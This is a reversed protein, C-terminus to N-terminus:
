FPSTVEVQFFRPKQPGNDGGDIINPFPVRVADIVGDTAIVEPTSENDVWDLLSNSFEVTYTLGASVYDKRRGYVAYWVGSDKVLVPQGTGTVVGAAYTIPGVASITPQTGFAYERLNSLGDTDQDNTTLKDTLAPSYTADAWANYLGLPTTLVLSNGIKVLSYGAIPTLLTPTGTIGTSSTILTHSPLTPTGSIKITGDTLNFSSTSTTPSGLTFSLSAGASVTIPSAHSGGILSLTGASVTTAGSYSNAAGNLTLTGAGTKTLAGTGVLARSATITSTADTVEITPTGTGGTGITFTGLGHIRANVGVGINKITGGTFNFESSANRNSIGWQGRLELTGGSLNYQDVAATTDGRNDLVVWDTKVTGGSQSMIGSGDVGIYIGGNVEAATATSPDTALAANAAITLTGGSINYNSTANSWHGIRMHTGATVSGGTQNGTAAFGSQEGLWLNGSNVVNVGTMFNVTSGTVATGLSINGATINGDLNAVSGVRGAVTGSLLSGNGLNIEVGNQNFGGISDLRVATKSKDTGVSTITNGSALTYGDLREFRVSASGADGNLIVSGTGLTGTTTNNGVAVLQGQASPSGSNVFIDKLANAGVNNTGTLLINTGSAGGGIVLVDTSNTTSISGSITGTSGYCMIKATGELTINGTIVANGDMRIAGIGGTNTGTYASLGSAVIPAGGSVEAFGHGSIIFNNSFTAASLWAQAGADVEITAAGIGAPTLTTSNRFTGGETGAGTTPSLLIKGTFTTGTSNINVGRVGAAAAFHPDIVITGSGALRNTFNFDGDNAVVKLTAGANVQVLSGTPITTTASAVLTGANMNAVLTGAEVLTVGTYTNLMTVLTATGTNTKTLGGTGIIGAATGTLTYPTTNDFVVAAPTVNTALTPAFTTATDDFVATDGNLFVNGSLSWNLATNIDWVSSAGGVWKNDGAATVVLNINGATDDTIAVTSHGQPTTLNLSSTSGTVTGVYTIIPYTGTVWGDAGLAVNLDNTGSLTVGGSTTTAIKDVVTGAANFDLNIKAGGSITLGGLGLTTASTGATAAGVQITTGSAATLTGTSTGSGTFTSTGNLAIAGNGHTGDLNFTNAAITIPTNGLVGTAPVIISGAAQTLGGTFNSTGSLTLAATGIKEIAVTGLGDNIAGAFTSAGNQHGIYLKSATASTNTITGGAGTPNLLQNVAEQRGNMDLTGSNLNIAVQNYILDGYTSTNIGAPPANIGTAATTNDYTGALQATGGNINLNGSAVAHIAQGVAATNGKALVLTGSNVIASGAANDTTGGLTLSGTGSMEIIARTITSNLVTANSQTTTLKWLATGGTLISGGTGSLSGVTHSRDWLDFTGGDVILNTTAPIVGTTSMNLSGLLVRVDGTFDNANSLINMSGAGVKTFGGDGTIKAATNFTGAGGLNHDVGTGSLTIIGNSISTATGGQFTGGNSVTVPHQSNVGWLTHFGTDNVTVTSTVDLINSRFQLGFTGQNVIINGITHGEVPSYWLEGSGTKTLTNSGGSFITNQTVDYRASGGWTTNGALTISNFHNTNTLGTGNNVVAGNGGLGGGSLILSNFKLGPTIGNADITGTGSVTVLSSGTLAGASGIKLVGNTVTVAGNIQNTGSLTVTGDGSKAINGTVTLPAAISYDIGTTNTFTLPGTSLATGTITRNAGSDNFLVADGVFFNASTVGDSALVFNATTNTNWTSNVAGTWILSDVATVSLDIRGDTTNDVLAATMHPYTGVAGLAFASFGAGGLTDYDVLAYTGVGATGLPSVTVTNAANVTTASIPAVISPAGIIPSFTTAGSAFNLSSLSMVGGALGATLTSGTAVNLAGSSGNSLVLNGAVLNTTGLNDWDNISTLTGTGLKEVTASAAGTIPGGINRSANGTFAVTGANVTLSDAAFLGSEFETRGTGNSVLHLTGLGSYTGQIQVNKLIDTTAAPTSFTLTSAAAVNSNRLTHSGTSTSFTNLRAVVQNFGNLELRGSGAGNQGFTFEKGTDLANSVGLQIQGDAVQTRVWTNGTSSVIVTGADTKNFIRDAGLDITGTYNVVGAGRTFLTGTGAGGTSTVTGGITMTTGSAANVQVLGTGAAVINSNWTNNSAGNLFTSRLDGTTNSNMTLTKGSAVTIGGQLELTTGAATMGVAANTGLAAANSLRLSGASVTVAGTFTNAGSLVVLGAGTKTLTGAGSVVGSFTSSGSAIATFNAAKNLTVAGSYVSANAGSGGITISGTNGARVNVARAITFAGSTLLSANEAGTTNGLVVASTANGLTGAAGSPAAAGLTLTGANVTTVGSFTNAGSLTLNGAGDKSVGGTGITMPTSITINGAGGVVLTFAGTVSATANNLTLTGADSNIRSQAAMTVTGGYINAGAINRLAGTNSIGGGNISLAEAGVTVAASTGDIELASSGSQTVGGAVTGLSTNNTIRLMGASIATASTYTNAGSLTLTGAGTKSWNTSGAVITSITLASGDVQIVPTTGALTLTNAATGGNGITVGVDSAAGVDDFLIGNITTAASFNIAAAATWDKRL